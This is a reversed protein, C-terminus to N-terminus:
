SKLSNEFYKLFYNPTTDDLFMNDFFIESYIYTQLAGYFGSRELAESAMKTPPCIRSFNCYIYPM